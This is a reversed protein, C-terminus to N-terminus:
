VVSKRDSYYSSGTSNIPVIRSEGFILHYFYATSYNSKSMLKLKIHSSDTCFNFPFSYTYINTLDFVDGFWQSGSKLLNLKDENLYNFDKFKTITQNFTQNFNNVSDLNNPM